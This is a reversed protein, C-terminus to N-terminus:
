RIDLIGIAPPDLFRMLLGIEGLGSYLWPIRIHGGHTHGPVALM